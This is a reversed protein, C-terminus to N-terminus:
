GTKPRYYRIPRLSKSQRGPYRIQVQSPSPWTLGCIRCKGNEWDHHPNDAPAPTHCYVCSCRANFHHHSDRRHGCQYCMCIEDHHDDLKYVHNADRHTRCDSCTCTKQWDHLGLRCRLTQRPNFKRRCRYCIASTNSIDHFSRHFGLLCRIDKLKLM